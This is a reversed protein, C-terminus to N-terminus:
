FIQSKRDYNLKVVEFILFASTQEVLFRCSDREPNEDTEDGVNLCIAGDQFTIRAM